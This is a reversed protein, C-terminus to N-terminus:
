SGADTRKPPQGDEIERRIKNLLLARAEIPIDEEEHVIVTGSPVSTNSISVELGKDKLMGQIIKAKDPDSMAEIMFKLKERQIEAEIQEQTMDNVRVAEKHQEAHLQLRLLNTMIMATQYPIRDRSLQDEIVRNMKDAFGEAGGFKDWIAGLTENLSPATKANALDMLLSVAEKKEQRIARAEDEMKAATEKCAVCQVWPGDLSDDFEGNPKLKCCAACWREKHSSSVFSGLRVKPM